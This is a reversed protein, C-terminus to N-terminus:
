EKAKRRSLKWSSDVGVQRVPLSNPSAEVLQGGLILQTKLKPCAMRYIENPQSPGCATVGRQPASESHHVCIARM